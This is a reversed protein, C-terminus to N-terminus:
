NPNSNSQKEPKVEVGHLEFEDWNGNDDFTGLGVRGWKFTNDHAAMFPEEMDDFYVEITGDAVRRVVKV